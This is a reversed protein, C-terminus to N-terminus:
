TKYDSKICHPLRTDRATKHATKKENQARNYTCAKQRIQSTNPRTCDHSSDHIGDHTIDHTTQPPQCMIKHSANVTKVASTNTRRSTLLDGKHAPITHHSCLKTQRQHLTQIAIMHATMHVTKTAATNHIADHPM